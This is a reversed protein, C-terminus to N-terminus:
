LTEKTQLIDDGIYAVINFVVAAAFAVILCTLGGDFDNKYLACGLCAINVLSAARMVNASLEILKLTRLATSTYIGSPINFSPVRRAIAIAAGVSIILYIM